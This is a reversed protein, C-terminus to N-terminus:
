PRQDRIEFRVDVEDETGRAAEVVAAGIVGGSEAVEVVDDDGDLIKELLSAADKVEIDIRVVAVADLESEVFLAADELYGQM